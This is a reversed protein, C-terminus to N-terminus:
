AQRSKQERNLWEPFDSPSLGILFEPNQYIVALALNRQAINLKAFARILAFGEALTADLVRQEYPTPQSQVPPPEHIPEAYLDITSVGLAAAIAELTGLTPNGQGLELRQINRRAVKAKEALDEQSWGLIERQRKIYLGIQEIGM